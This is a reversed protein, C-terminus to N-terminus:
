IHVAFKLIRQFFCISYLDLLIFQFLFGLILGWLILFFFFFIASIGVNASSLLHYIVASIFSISISFYFHNVFGFSPKQFSLCFQCHKALILFLPPGLYTFNYILSFVNSQYWLFVSSGFLRSHTVVCRSNFLKSSVSLNGSVSVWWSQIMFFCFIKSLDITILLYFWYGFGVGGCFELVLHSWQPIADFIQLVLTLREWVELFQLPPWM